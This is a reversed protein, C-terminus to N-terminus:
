CTTNSPFRVITLVHGFIYFDDLEDAVIPFGIGNVPQLISPSGYIYKRLHIKKDIIFIGTEGYIPHRDRAILLIDGELYTPHLSKNTIEIGCMIKEGFSDVYDSVDITKTYMSDFYMGDKMHGTPVLVPIEHKGTKSNKVTLQKEFRAICYLLNKSREPLSAIDIDHPVVLQSPINLNYGLLYDLSCEFANSLKLISNLSPNAIKGSILKKLSDYPIDSKDSLTKLSWNHISLLKNINDQLISVTSDLCNNNMNGGLFFLLAMYPVACFYLRAM